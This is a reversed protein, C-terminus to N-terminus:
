TQPYFCRQLASTWQPFGTKLWLMALKSCWWTSNTCNLLWCICFYRMSISNNKDDKSYLHYNLMCICMNEKNLLDFANEGQICDKSFRHRKASTIFFLVINSLYYIFRHMSISLDKVYGMHQFLMKKVPTYEYHSHSIYTFQLLVCKRQSATLHQLHIHSPM